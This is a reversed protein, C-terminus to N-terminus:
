THCKKLRRKARKDRAIRRPQNIEIHDDLSVKDSTDIIYFMSIIDNIIEKRKHQNDEQLLQGLQVASILYKM